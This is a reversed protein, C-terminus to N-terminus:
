VSLNTPLTLHTYSVTIRGFLGITNEKEISWRDVTITLNDTPTLVVGLTANTSEEPRLNPNGLRYNLTFITYDKLFGSGSSVQTDNNNKYIVYKHLADERTGSRTVYPQNM